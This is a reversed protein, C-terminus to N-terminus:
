KLNNLLQELSYEDQVLVQRAKSGESPGAIGAAELQDMIRGARNYGILFKRQISSTSALQQMVIMRAAEGFLPDRKSPDVTGPAPSDGEDYYEPLEFAAPYGTQNGIFESIKILESTDAFACQVRTTENGYSFLLDGRGILQNAGPSDLIIRSDTLTEVRFAVRIPFSAKITGTIIDPSPRQTAIIMHIGVASQAKQAIRTVSLEMERGGETILGEYGNIIVVIFPMYKHGEDPNLRRSIFKANYKTITPVQAKVFLQYRDNMEKYLSNLTPIVKRYDTIVPKDVGPLKALYHCEIRDYIGFEVMEPDILVFKLESPHKKYLLSTIIANLGASKGQGSCGAALLHPMKNLDFVFVENGVTKGLAVPLNHKSEQFKHSSIVSQMSVIQPDKNPVEIGITGRVPVPAIIRIGITGLSLVIDDELNRIKAFKIGAAPVVEYLTFTPGATAEISDFRIDFNELTQIIRERNVMQEEMDAQYDDNDYKKLLEIGPLRFDPLDAKPDYNGLGSGNYAEDVPAEETQRKKFFKM